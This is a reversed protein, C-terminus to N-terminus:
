CCRYLHLPRAEIAGHPGAEGWRSSKSLGRLLDITVSRDAVYCPGFVQVLECILYSPECKLMYNNKGTWPLRFCAVHAVAAGGDYITYVSASAVNRHEARYRARLTGIHLIELLFILGSRFLPELFSHLSHFGCCASCPCACICCHTYRAPLAGGPKSMPRLFLRRGPMCFHWGRGVLDRRRWEFKQDLLDVGMHTDKNECAWAQLLILM